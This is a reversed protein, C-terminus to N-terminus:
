FYAENVPRRNKIAEFSGRSFFGSFVSKIFIFFSHNKYSAALSWKIHRLITFLFKKRPCFQIINWLQNRTMYYIRKENLRNEPPSQHFFIIKPDYIIIKNLELVKNATYNENYFMFYHGPFYDIKKFIEKKIIFGCGAFLNCKTKVKADFHRPWQLSGDYNNIMGAIIAINKNEKIADDALTLVNKDPYSDDDLVVLYEGQAQEFGINYAKIGINEKLATFKVLPFLKPIEEATNDISGNDVLIVEFDLSGIEFIKDLNEKLIEKRNYSILVISYKIM